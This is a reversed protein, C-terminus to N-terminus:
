RSFTFSTSVADIAANEIANIMQDAPDGTLVELQQGVAYLTLTYTHSSGPPPCPGAYASKGASNMAVAATPIDQGAALETATAAINAVVWHRYSPLDDDSLVLAVTVTGSPVGSWLLPPSTNAGACTHKAEISGGEIWAGTLTMTSEDGPEVLEGPITTTEQAVTGSQDGTPARMTRGDNRSCAAVTVICM